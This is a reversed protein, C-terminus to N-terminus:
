VGRQSHDFDARRADARDTRHLELASAIADLFKRMARERQEAVLFALRLTYMEDSAEAVAQAKVGSYGEAIMLVSKARAFKQEFLARARAFDAGASSLEVAFVFRMATLQDGRSGGAGLPRLAKVLRDHLPDAPDPDVIGVSLLAEVVWGPLYEPVPRV